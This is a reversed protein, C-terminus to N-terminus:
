RAKSEARKRAEVAKKLQADLRLVRAAARKMARKWAPVEVKARKLEAKIQAMQQAGAMLLRSTVLLQAAYRHALASERTREERLKDVAAAAKKAAAVAKTKLESKM